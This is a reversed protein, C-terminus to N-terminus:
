FVWKKGKRKFDYRVVDLIISRTAEKLDEKRCPKILRFGLRFGLRFWFSSVEVNYGDYVRTVKVNRRIKKLLRAKM